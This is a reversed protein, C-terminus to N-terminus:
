VLGRLTVLGTARVVLLAVLRAAGVVLVAIARPSLVILRTVLGAAGVVLVAVLGAAGVVLVVIARPSLVILRTVLGVLVAVLGAAGVVLVAARRRLRGVLGPCRLSVEVAAVVLDAPRDVRRM